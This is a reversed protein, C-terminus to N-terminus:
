RRISQKLLKLVLQNAPLQHRVDQFARRCQTQSVSPKDSGSEPIPGWLGPYFSHDYFLGHIWLIILIIISHKHPVGTINQEILRHPNTEPSSLKISSYILGNLGLVILGISGCLHPHVPTPPLHLFRCLPCNVGHCFLCFSFDVCLVACKCIACVSM